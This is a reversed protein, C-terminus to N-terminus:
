WTWCAIDYPAVMEALDISDEGRERWMLIRQLGHQYRDLARWRERHGCSSDITRHLNGHASLSRAVVTMASSCSVEWSQQSWGLEWPLTQSRRM